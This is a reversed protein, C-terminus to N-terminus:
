GSAITPRMGIHVLLLRLPCCSAASLFRGEFSCLPAVCMGIVAVVVALVKITTTFSPTQLRRGFAWTGLSTEQPKQTHRRVLGMTADATVAAGLAIDEFVEGKGKLLREARGLDEPQDPPCESQEVARDAAKRLERLTAALGRASTDVVAVRDAVAIKVPPSPAEAAPSAAGM